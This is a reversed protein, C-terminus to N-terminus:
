MEEVIKCSKCVGTFENKDLHMLSINCKQCIQQPSEVLPIFSSELSIHFHWIHDQSINSVNHKPIKAKILNDEYSVITGHLGHWGHWMKDLNDSTNIKFKDGPLFM